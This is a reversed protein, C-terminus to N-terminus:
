PVYTKGSFYTSKIIKHIYFIDGCKNQAVPIYKNDILLSQLKDNPREINMALVKYRDFPFGKMIEYEYGEVDLSFYDITTPANYKRLVQEFPTSIIHKFVIQDERVKGRLDPPIENIVKKRAEELSDAEITMSRLTNDPNDKIYALGPIEVIFLSSEKWSVVTQACHATRNKILQTFKHTPEVLIGTWGYNKELVWTNSLLVGDGAGIEIFFGPKTRGPFVKEVVWHDQGYQSRFGRGLDPQKEWQPLSLPM